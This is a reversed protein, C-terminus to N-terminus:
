LHMGFAITNRMHIDTDPLIYIAAYSFSLTGRLELVACMERGKLTYFSEMGIDKDHKLNIFVFFLVNYLIIAAETEESWMHLM